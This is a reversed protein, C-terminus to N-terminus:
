RVAETVGVRSVGLILDTPRSARELAPQGDADVVWWVDAPLTTALAEEGDSGIAEQAADHLTDADWGRSFAEYILSEMLAALSAGRRAAEAPALGQVALLIFFRRGARDVSPALAGAKWGGGWLSDREVFRWVPAGDHADPFAHSLAEASDALSRSLWDDVTARDEPALGRAVFDGHHPLKGFLVASPATM